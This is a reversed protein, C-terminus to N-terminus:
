EPGRPVNGIFRTHIYTMKIKIMQLPYALADCPGLDPLPAVYIEMFDGAVYVVRMCNVWDYCGRSQTGWFVGIVTENEFDVDPPDTKGTNDYLNWYRDHFELWAENDTFIIIGPEPVDFHQAEPFNEYIGPLRGTPNDGCTLLIATIAPLVSIRYLNSM